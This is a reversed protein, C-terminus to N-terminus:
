KKAFALIKRFPIHGMNAAKERIASIGISSGLWM